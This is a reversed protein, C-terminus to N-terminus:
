HLQYVHFWSIWWMITVTALPARSSSRHSQHPDPATPPQPHTCMSLILVLSFSPVTHPKTSALVGRGGQRQEDQLEWWGTRRLPWQGWTGWALIHGGQTRTLVVMVCVCWTLRHSPCQECKASICRSHDWWLNVAKFVLAVAEKLSGRLHLFLM